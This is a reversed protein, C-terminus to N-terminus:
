RPTDMAELRLEVNLQANRLLLTTPQGPLRELTAGHAFLPFLQRELQQRAPDLCAMRTSALSPAYLQGDQIRYAGHFRNCGDYGSILRLSTDFSISPQAGPGPPTPLRIAWDGALDIVDPQPVLTICATLLAPTLCQLLRRSSM